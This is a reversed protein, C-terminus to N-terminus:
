RSWTSFAKIVFFLLQSVGVWGRNWRKVVNFTPANMHVQIRPGQLPGSSCPGEGGGVPPASFNRVDSKRVCRLLRILRGEEFGARFFKRADARWSSFSGSGPQPIGAIYSHYVGKVMPTSSSREASANVMLGTDDITPCNNPCYRSM